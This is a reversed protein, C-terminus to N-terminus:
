HVPVSHRGCLYWEDPDNEAHTCFLVFFCFLFCFLVFFCSLFLSRSRSLSLRRICAVVVVVLVFVRVGSVNWGLIVGRMNILTDLLGQAICHGNPSFFSMASLSDPMYQKRNYVSVDCSWFQNTLCFYKLGSLTPAPPPPPPLLPLPPLLSCYM